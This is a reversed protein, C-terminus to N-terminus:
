ADDMVFKACIKQRQFYVLNRVILYATILVFVAIIILLTVYSVNDRNGCVSSNKFWFGHWVWRCSTWGSLDSHWFKASYVQGVSHVAASYSFSSQSALLIDSMIMMQITTSLPYDLHVVTNGFNEFDEFQEQSLNSCDLESTPRDSLPQMMGAQSLVHFFADPHKNRIMMMIQIYYENPLFTFCRSDVVPNFRRQHVVVNTRNAVFVKSLDMKPTSFFIQRLLPRFEVYWDPNQDLVKRSINVTYVVPSDCTAEQPDSITFRPIDIPLDAIPRLRTLGAFEELSQLTKSDTSNQLHELQTMGSYAFNFGYKAAVVISSVIGQWQSGWGDHGITNTMWCHKSGENLAVIGHAAAMAEAAVIVDAASKEEADTQEKAASNAEVTDRHSPAKFQVSEPRWSSHATRSQSLSKPVHVFKPFAAELTEFPLGNSYLCLNTVTYAFVLGIGVAYRRRLM